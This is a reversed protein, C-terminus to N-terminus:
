VTREFTLGQFTKAKVTIGAKDKSQELEEQLKACRSRMRIHMYAKSCKIHYHFYNRFSLLKDVTSYRKEESCHANQLSFSVFGYNKLFDKDDTERVTFPFSKSDSTKTQILELPKVGQTFSVSPASGLERDRRSDKFEQLFIRGLENDDEDDFKISYIIILSKEKEYYIIYISEEKRYPISIPDFSKQKLFLDFSYAFPTMMVYRKILPAIQLIKQQEKEDIGDIKFSITATYKEQTPQLWDGYVTKLYGELGYFNLVEGCLVLISITITEIQSELNDKGTLGTGVITYSTGDFEQAKIELINKLREAKDTDMRVKLMNLILSNEADLFIM